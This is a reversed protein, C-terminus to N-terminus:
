LLLDDRTAAIKSYDASMNYKSIGQCVRMIRYKTLSYVILKM